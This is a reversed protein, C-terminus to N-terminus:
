EFKQFFSGMDYDYLIRRKKGEIKMLRKSPVSEIYDLDRINLSKLGSARMKLMVAIDVYVTLDHDIFWVMFGSYVGDIHSKMELGEWQNPRIDSKFNLTNGHIAKCEIYFEYPKRYVIFDCITNDGMYGSMSDKLRDLSVGEIKLFSSKIQREFDKGRNVKAM